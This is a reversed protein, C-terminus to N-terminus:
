RDDLAMEERSGFIGQPRYRALLILGLGVMIFRVQSINFDSLEITDELANSAGDPLERLTTELFAILTWYIMSGIVPSWTRGPGGLILIAWITFTIVPNFTDAQISGKQIVQLMGAMGGIVGGLMLSQLKFWYANKGLARAADEDERIAKLARGWPSSMLRKVFLVTLILVIWGVTLVWLDRGLYSFPGFDYRVGVDFPNLSTEYFPDAFEGLGESAGTFEKMRRWRVFLRISESAAITVIALYDGRLRLTPLGLIAALILSYVIGFAVGVMFSWEFYHITVGLGYAGAAMFGVQGFNLLGTYGFHVNLGVAALAFVMVEVGFMTSFTRELIFGWDM